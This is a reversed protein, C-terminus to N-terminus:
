HAVGIDPLPEADRTTRVCNREVAVATDVGLAREITVPLELPDDRGCLARDCSGCRGSSRCIPSLRAADVDRLPNRARADRTSPRIAPPPAIAARTLGPSASANWKQPWM